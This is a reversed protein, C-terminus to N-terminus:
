RLQSEKSSIDYNQICSFKTRAAHFHQSSLAHRTPQLETV